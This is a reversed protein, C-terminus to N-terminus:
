RTAVLTQDIKETAKLSKQLELAAYRNPLHGVEVRYYTRGRVEASAVAADYGHAKLKQVMMQADRETGYSAVQVYWVPGQAPQPLRSPQSAVPVPAAPLPLPAAPKDSEIATLLAMM